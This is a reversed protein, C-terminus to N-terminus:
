NNDMNIQTKGITSRVITWSKFNPVLCKERFKSLITAQGLDQTSCKKLGAIVSQAWNRSCFHNSRQASVFFLIWSYIISHTPTRTRTHTSQANPQNVIFADNSELLTLVRTSTWIERLISNLFTYVSLLLRLFKVYNFNITAKVRVRANVSIIHFNYINYDYLTILKTRARVRVLQSWTKM